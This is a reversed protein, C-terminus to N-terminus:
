GLSCEEVPRALGLDFLKVTGKADFGVNGPKLDRLVIGQAHLYKMGEAIGSAVTRLREEFTSITPRELQGISSNMSRRRMSKTRLIKFLSPRKNYYQADQRWRQLRDMLTEELIDLLLFYGKGEQRTGM